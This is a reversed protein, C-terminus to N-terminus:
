SAVLISGWQGEVQLILNGTATVKPQQANFVDVWQQSQDGLMELPIELTQPRASGNLVVITKSGGEAFARQDGDSRAFVYLDRADDMVLTQYDGVQLAPYQNRIQILTQYHHLLDEDVVVRDPTLQRSGDPLYVEPDYTLDGWLMPKRDDPDNAGWMGVEDGYYVMPAGVYTMQFIVFLKQLQRDAESPKRTNYTPNTSRSQEHYQDWNRFSGLTPNQRNAIHSGLRDTDHSSFLNQMVYAVGPDFAERLDQLQRDFTALTSAKPELYHEAFAFAVDYNMLADFEDGQLYPQTAPPGGFVEGVIYAEPNISKVWTRWAKWFPHDVCFPVDLRWGDIGDQPDGDGNPDLWRQTIAFLYQKPGEVIGNADERFEPLDSIGYWGRYQFPIGRAPDAWTIVDFWDKFKSRQQNREVDQFAWSTHGMHNFVADFIIRMGRRHVEQILDLALRDATTWQWTSPDDPIEQAMLARDGGPDPGFTPDIHHYTAGDYKHSSPAQFVPNLYLASVGLTQLYDLKDLIGQLDGGYRRRPLNFGRDHGNAQEYPQLAYWDATWPHIKWPSNPDDPYAGQIDGLTPDNRPDGNRFREPFVQYWV